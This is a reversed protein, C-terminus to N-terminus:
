RLRRLGELVRRLQDVDPAPRRAGAQSLEATRRVKLGQRGQPEATVPACLGTRVLDGVRDIAEHLSVGCSGALDRISSLGDIRSAVVWQGSSVVVSGRALDRLELQDTVALQSRDLVAAKRMAVARADVVRMRSYGATWHPMPGTFRAGTIATNDTLPVTLVILADIVMSRLVTRLGAKSVFRRQILAAGIDRDSGGDELALALGPPRQSQQGLRSTLDPIWSAEAFTVLGHDLYITGAPDGTIELRGSADQLALKELVAAANPGSHVNGMVTEQGLMAFYGM